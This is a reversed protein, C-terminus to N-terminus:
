IAELEKALQLLVPKAEAPSLAMVKIAYNTQLSTLKRHRDAGLAEAAKVREQRDSATFKMARLEKRSLEYDSFDYGAQKIEEECVEMARKAKLLRMLTAQVKAPLKRFPIDEKAKDLAVIREQRVEERRTEVMKRVLSEAITM